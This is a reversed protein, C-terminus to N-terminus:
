RKKSVYARAGTTMKVEVGSQDNYFWTFNPDDKVEHLPKYGEKVVRLRLEGESMTVMERGESDNWYIEYIMGWYGRDGASFTERKVLDSWKVQIKNSNKPFSGGFIIEGNPSFFKYFVCSDKSCNTIPAVLVISKNASSGETVRCYTFGVILQTGCSEILATKDRGEVASMAEDIKISDCSTLIFALILVLFKM